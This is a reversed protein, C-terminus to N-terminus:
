SFCVVGGQCITMFGFVILYRELHFPLYELLCKLIHFLVEVLFGFIVLLFSCVLFAPFFCFSNM